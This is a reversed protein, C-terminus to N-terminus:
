FERVTRARWHNLIPDVKVKRRVGAVTTALEVVDIENWSHFYQDVPFLAYPRLECFVRGLQEQVRYVAHFFNGRGIGLARTCARWDRDRLFHLSFVRRHLNDLTRRAILVFDACYEQDPRGWALAGRKGAVVELNVQAIHPDKRACERYKRLCARFIARLVCGCPATGGRRAQLGVGHCRGCNQDAMAITNGRDWVFRGGKEQPPERWIRLRAKAARREEELEPTWVAAAV